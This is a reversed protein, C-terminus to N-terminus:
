CCEYHVPSRYLTFKWSVVIDIFVNIKIRHSIGESAFYGSRLIAAGGLVPECRSVTHMGPFGM